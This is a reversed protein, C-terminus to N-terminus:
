RQNQLFEEYRRELRNPDPKLSARHPTRIYANHIEQLGHKLMPGDKEKLIDRRVEISYDPRVGFFMRDYGAHHLKCLSLGNSVIPEGEPSTDPIIHAADLMSVHRLNCITCRERYAQLVRERFTQQHIRQRVTRTVYARRLEPHEDDRPYDMQLADDAAVTFTLQDPDDAVIYVPWIALYKGPITSHFYILPIGKGITERLKRNEHFNPNIGRYKYLLFPSEKSFADSYPGKTTTTISLPFYRIQAPKFIGQPGVLVVKQDNVLVGQELETRTFENGQISEARRLWDFVGQRIARSQQDEQDALM